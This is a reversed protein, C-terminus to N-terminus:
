YHRVRAHRTSEAAAAAEVVAVVVVVVVTGGSRPGRARRSQASGVCEISGVGGTDAGADAGSGVRCFPAGTMMQTTAVGRACGASRVCNAAAPGGAATGRAAPAVPVGGGVTTATASDRAQRQRRNRRRWRCKWRSRWRPWSWCWCRCAGVVGVVVTLRERLTKWWLDEVSLVDMM